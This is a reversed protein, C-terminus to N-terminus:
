SRQRFMSCTLVACRGNLIIRGYSVDYYAQMQDIIEEAGFEDSSSVVKNAAQESNLSSVADNELGITQALAALQRKQRSEQMKSLYSDGVPLPHGRNYYSVLEELKAMLKEKMKELKPSILHRMLSGRTHDDILYKLVLQIFYEVSSWVSLLHAEAIGKWPECQDRFLSGVLLQNPTGPLEIGRSERAQEKIERKLSERMIYQPTWGDMYPQSIEEPINLTPTSSSQIMRRNGRISMAHAFCENLERVIARLRRFPFEEANATYNKYGGFFDDVYSGNLAQNTIRAFRSSIEVLFRRQEQVSTRFTGMKALAQENRLIKDQIDGILDPLNRRIHSLLITSLRHRLNEIGVQDRPLSAWRGKNFFEKEQVDRADDSINMTEFSRNRLVHWGLQLQVKENRILQLYYDEDDSGADPVDPQTVIGLVREYKPDFEQAMNVVKQIHYDNRASIVALIIARSSKMYSETLSQVIRMGPEGQDSSTSYYLGPLDVLTLEPRDPGSIEVKLVDDSFGSNSALSDTNSLGMCEKASEILSPLDEGSSFSESTFACLKERETTDKRSKGPEISVKVRNFPHRRLVIETAFRTCVSSKAPFRVRSIAELVSSKGSSQNGCVVIQPLEVLGGVGITRLEDIKDLLESQEGKLQNLVNEDIPCSM